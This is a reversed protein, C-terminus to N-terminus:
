SAEKLKNSEAVSQATELMNEAFIGYGKTPDDVLVHTVAGILKGNQIIPSGSMGQVIGGTKNILESDTVEIVLNKIKTGTKIEIIKCEYLKPTIGSLTTLIYAKDEKTIEGHNAIQLSKYKTYKNSGYGYVGCTSNLIERTFETNKFRGCLEGAADNDSKNVSFIEAPVISGLSVSLLKGTDNDCIGHGLGAVVKTESDYFTLTGIGASSDRVWAGLHYRGDKDSIKPYVTASKNQGNRSFVINLSKDKNIKVIREVDKNSYVYVGNISLIYDGVMVGSEKVPCVNSGNSKFNNLGIVLVGDTYIKIGFPTGLVDVTKANTINVNTNTVPFVGLLKIEVNYLARNTVNAGVRSVSIKDTNCKIPLSCNINLKSIDSVFYENEIKTQTYAILVFVVTVFFSLICLFGKILKKM